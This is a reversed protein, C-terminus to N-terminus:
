REVQSRYHRAQMPLRIVFRAGQGSKGVERLTGGHAEVYRRASALGLGSGGEGGRTTFFPQFIKQKRKQPVGPGNDAISIVAFVCGGPDTEVRSMVSIHPDLSMDAKSLAHAANDLVADIARGMLDADLELLHKQPCREYDIRFRIEWGAEKVREHVFEGLEVTACNLVISKGFAQFDRTFGAIDKSVALLNKFCEGAVSNWFVAEVHPAKHLEYNLSAIVSALRTVQRNFDHGIGSFIESLAASKHLRENQL